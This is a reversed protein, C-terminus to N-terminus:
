DRFIIDINDTHLGILFRRRDRLYYDDAYYHDNVVYTTHNGHRHGDYRHKRYTSSHHNGRNYKHVSGHRDHSKHHKGRPRYDHKNSHTRHENQSYKERSHGRDDRDAMAMGPSLVLSMAFMSLLPLSKLLLRKNM